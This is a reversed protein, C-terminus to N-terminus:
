KLPLLISCKAAITQEQEAVDSKIKGKGRVGKFCSSATELLKEVEEEQSAPAEPRSM